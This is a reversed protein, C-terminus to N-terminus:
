RRQKTRLSFVLKTFLGDRLLKEGLIPATGRGPTSGPWLTFATAAIAEALTNASSSNSGYGYEIRPALM